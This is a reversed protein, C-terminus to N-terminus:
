LLPRKGSHSLLRRISISEALRAHMTNATKRWASTSLYATIQSARCNMNGASPYTVAIAFATAIAAVVANSGKKM